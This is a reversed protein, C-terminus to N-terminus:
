GIQSDETARSKFTNSSKDIPQYENYDDNPHTKSYIKHGFYLTFFLIVSSYIM